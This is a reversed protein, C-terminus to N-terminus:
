GSSSASPRDRRTLCGSTCCTPTLSPRSIGQSRADVSSPSNVSAEILGAREQLVVQTLDMLTPRLAPEEEMRVVLQDLLQDLAAHTQERFSEGLQRDQYAALSLVASDM